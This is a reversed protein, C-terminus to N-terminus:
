DVAEDAADESSGKCNPNTASRLISLTSHWSNGHLSPDVIEGVDVGAEVGAPGEAPPEEASAHEAADEEGVRGGGGILLAVGPVASGVEPGVGGHDGLLVEVWGLAACELGM